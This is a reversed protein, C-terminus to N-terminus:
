LLFTPRPRRTSIMLPRVDVGMSWPFYGLLLALNRSHFGRRALLVLWPTPRAADLPTHMYFRLRAPVPSPRPSAQKCSLLTYSM